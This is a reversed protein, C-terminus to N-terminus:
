KKLLIEIQKLYLQAIKNWSFKLAQDYPINRYNTSAAIKLDIAYKNLNEPETLIGADGIIEKRTDDNTAVVPLNCALAEVYSIGFAETKSVLTFVDGTKYYAAIDQHPVAIRKYRHNLLRKGLSDLYGRMQGDGLVLLSLDNTKAVAKITLDIRKYPDLSSACVVIPKPLDIKQPKVKPHFRSLDVGNPIYVIEVENTLKSAWIKQPTTPAVFLNPHFFINWAGDSGIGAQGSVIIKYKSFFSLIKILVIQWGGNLPIVIDFNGKLIKPTAKITFLFIKFSELDLYIKSFIGWSSKPRAAFSNIFYTRIAPNQILRGGQFITIKHKKSLRKAIELTFTEVGRDVVGSYYSLLAINAM